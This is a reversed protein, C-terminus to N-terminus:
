PRPELDTPGLGTMRTKFRNLPTAQEGHCSWGAAVAMADALFPIWKRVEEDTGVILFREDLCLSVSAGDASPIATLHPVRYGRVTVRWEEVFPGVLEVGYPHAAFDLPDDTM